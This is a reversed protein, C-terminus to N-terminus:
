LPGRMFRTFHDTYNQIPKAHKYELFNFIANYFRVEGDSGIKGKFTTNLMAGFYDAVLPLRKDLQNQRLYEGFNMRIGNITAEKTSFGSEPFTIRDGDGQEFMNIIGIDAVKNAPLRAHMVIAGDEIAEASIGNFVKPKEREREDLNIGSIWGILPRMAFGEFSTVHLAFTFHTPSQAPIIIFTFGNDPADRYVQSITQADYRKIEIESIYEPLETVFIKEKSTLGGAQTMFYPTTGGIWNGAPIQRLLSEDGALLLRQGGALKLRVEEVTHMECGM